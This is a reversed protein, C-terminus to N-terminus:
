EGSNFTVLNMNLRKLSFIVRRKFWRAQQVKPMALRSTPQLCFCFKTAPYRNCRYYQCCFVKLRVCVQFHVRVQLRLQVGAQTHMTLQLQAHTTVACNRIFARNFQFTIVVSVSDNVGSVSHEPVCESLVSVYVSHVPVDNSYTNVNVSEYM